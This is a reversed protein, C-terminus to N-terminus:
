RPGQNRRLADIKAQVADLKKEKASVRGAGSRANLMRQLEKVRQKAEDEIPIFFDKLKGADGGVLHLNAPSTMGATTVCLRFGTGYKRYSVVIRM